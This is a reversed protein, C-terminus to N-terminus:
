FNAAVQERVIAAQKQRVKEMKTLAASMEGNCRNDRVAIATAITVDVHADTVEFMSCLIATREREHREQRKAIRAFLFSVAAAVILGSVVSGVIVEVM